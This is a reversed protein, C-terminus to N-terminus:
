SEPGVNTEFKSAFLNILFVTKKVIFFHVSTKIKNIRLYLFEPQKIWYKLEVKRCEKVRRM